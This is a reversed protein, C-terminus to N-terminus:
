EAASLRIGVLVDLLEPLVASVLTVAVVFAGTVVMLNRRLLDRLASLDRTVVLRSIMSLLIETWAFNTMAFVMAVIRAGYFYLTVAGTPLVSLVSTAGLDKFDWIQHGLRLLLSNRIVGGLGPHWFVPSWRIGLTRRIYSQQVALGIMTSGVSAAAIAAIGYRAGCILIAMVNLAPTLLGLLYSPLFHMEARLLTSNVRIAANGVLGLALVSIVSRLADLRETTFGPALVRGVSWARSSAPM